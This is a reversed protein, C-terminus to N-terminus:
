QELGIELAGLTITVPPLGYGDIDSPMLVIPNNLLSPDLIVLYRALGPWWANPFTFGDEKIKLGREICKAAVHDRIGRKIGGREQADKVTDYVFLFWKPNATIWGAVPEILKRGNLYSESTFPGRYKENPSPWLNPTTM